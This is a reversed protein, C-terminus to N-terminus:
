DIKKHFNPWTFFLNHFDRRKDTNPDYLGLKSKLSLYTHRKAVTGHLLFYFTKEKKPNLLTPIKVGSLAGSSALQGESNSTPERQGM